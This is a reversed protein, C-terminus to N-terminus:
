RGSTRRVMLEPAVDRERSRAVLEFRNDLYRNGGLLLARISELGYLPLFFPGFRSWQRVHELEHRITGDPIPERAVIIRGLTQAYPRLPVHDLYQGLRPDEYLLGATGDELTVARAPARVGCLRVVVLGVLDGPLTRWAWRLGHRLPASALWVDVIAGLWRWIV